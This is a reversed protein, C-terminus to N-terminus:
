DKLIRNNKKALVTGIMLASQLHSPLALDRHPLTTQKYVACQFVPGYRIFYQVTELYFDCLEMKSKANVTDCFQSM